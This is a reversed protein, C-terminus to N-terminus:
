GRSRALILFLLWLPSSVYAMVGMFLHFRNAPRFGRATLLWTHQLNGQCWRRDRKASEILTPPGEEYSGEIDHALWVAWGAKRMLAAEVFDHSLIRGRVARQGAARPARLPGHLAPRAPDRQPGLLQGRAAALLQARWTCRATSGTRSRRSARTSPSAGYVLRPATQIIGASPNAEMMTVLRALAEGTMVSDADLVVMYRYNRGWRRLFDAVNGAKKNIAQRAQPLLDERLRRGAQV